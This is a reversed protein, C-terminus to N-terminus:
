IMFGFFLSSSFGFPSLFSLHCLCSVEFLKMLDYYQGHVDGCVPSSSSVLLYFLCLLLGTIPAPVDIMTPESRLLATCERIIRLAVDAAVRGENIFHTRLLEADPLNTKYVESM